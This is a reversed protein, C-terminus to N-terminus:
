LKGGFKSLGLGFQLAMVMGTSMATVFILSLSKLGIFYIQEIVLYFYLPRRMLDHLVARLLLGAGGLFHAAGLIRGGLATFVGSMM